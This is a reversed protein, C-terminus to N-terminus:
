EALVTAVCQKLPALYAEVVSWVIELDIDLYGHTIRNRFGAIDQWPIEPDAPKTSSSLRQTSEAMIPLNRIAADQILTTGFFVERGGRTYEGICDSSEIIHALYSREDKM